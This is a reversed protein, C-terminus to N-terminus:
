LGIMPGGKKYTSDESLASDDDLIYRFTQGSPLVVFATDGDNLGAGDISDLSGTTGGVASIAGYFKVAM